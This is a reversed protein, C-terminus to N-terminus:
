RPRGRGAASPRDPDVVHTLGAQLLREVFRDPDIRRGLELEDGHLPLLALFDIEVGRRVRLTWFTEPLLAPRELLVGCFRCGSMWPEPPQGNCVTMGPEFWTDHAHPFKGLVGLMSMPWLREPLAGEASLVPWDPPLLICLEAHLLRPGGAAEPLRMPAGSMGNTVLTWWPRDGAPPVPYIDVHVLDSFLDHFVYPATGVTREIHDHVAQFHESIGAPRFPIRRGDHVVRQTGNPNSEIRGVM